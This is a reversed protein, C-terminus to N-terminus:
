PQTAAADSFTMSADTPTPGQLRGTRWGTQSDPRVTVTATAGGDLTVDLQDVNDITLVLWQGGATQVAVYGGSVFRDIQCQEVAPTRFCLQSSTGDSFWAVDLDPQLRYWTTPGTGQVTIPTSSLDSTAPLTESPGPEAAATTETSSASTTDPAATTESASGATTEAATIEPAATTTASASQDSSDRASLWAVGLMAGIVLVAAAARLWVPSAGHKPPRSPTVRLEGAVPQVTVEDLLEGARRLREELTISM